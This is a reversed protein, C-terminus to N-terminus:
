KTKIAYINRTWQGWVAPSDPRFKLMRKNQVNNWLKQCTSSGGQFNECISWQDISWMSIYALNCKCPHMVVLSSWWPPGLATQRSSDTRPLSGLRNSRDGIYGDNSAFNILTFSLGGKWNRVVMPNRIVHTKFLLRLSRRHYWVALYEWHRLHFIPAVNSPAIPWNPNLGLLEVLKHEM